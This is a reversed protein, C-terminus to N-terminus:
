PKYLSQFFWSLSKPIIQFLSWFDSCGKKSYCKINHAQHLFLIFFLVFHLNTWRRCAAVEIFFTPLPYSCVVKFLNKCKKLRKFQQLTACKEDYCRIYYPWLQKIVGPSKKYNQVEYVLQLVQSLFADGTIQFM